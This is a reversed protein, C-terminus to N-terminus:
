IAKCLLKIMFFLQWVLNNEKWLSLEQIKKMRIELDCIDIGWVDYAVVTNVKLGNFSPTRRKIMEIKVLNKLRLITATSRNGFLDKIEKNGIEANEYFVKLATEINTITPIYM